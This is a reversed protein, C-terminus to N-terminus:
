IANVDVMNMHSKTHSNVGCQELTAIAERETESISHLYGETTTRNEHGLIRQITTIPVNKRELLSAGSHRLAHFRFYPVGAQKCLTRMIRKREKFPGERKKRDKSSTFTHWFVWPKQLDREQHRRALISFLRKTMPVKRPTLHGGRKKRTYLIVNRSNLDVDNWTLRNVESMRAMTDRITWLYDQIEQDATALVREIEEPSPIYRVRKEVPLYSVGETPNSNVWKKKQGFNFTARLFRIEKNATYASVSSRELVFKEIMDQSIQNCTLNGWREIWRKATSRYDAYHHDSNYAKVHDLRRNVLELFDMDTPIEKTSKLEMLRQRRGEEAQMAKRKTKFWAETYRQNNLTFDYRWGKQKVLYVSM